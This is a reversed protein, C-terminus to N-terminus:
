SNNVKQAMHHLKDALENLHEKVEEHAAQYDVDEKLLQPNGKYRKGIEIEKDLFPKVSKRTENTEQVAFHLSKYFEERQTDSFEPQYDQEQTYIRDSLVYNRLSTKVSKHARKDNEDDRMLGERLQTRSESEMGDIYRYKNFRVNNLYPYMPSNKDFQTMKAKLIDVNAPSRDLISSVFNKVTFVRIDTGDEFIKHHNKKDDSDTLIFIDRDSEEHHLNYLSSGVLSYGVIPADLIKPLTLGKASKYKDIIEHIEDLTIPQLDPKEPAYTKQESAAPTLSATGHDQPSSSVISVAPSPTLRTVSPQVNKSMSQLNNTSMKQEYVTQAQQVTEYHPENTNRTIPCNGPQANCKKPGDETLHFKAM